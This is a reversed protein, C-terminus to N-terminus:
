AMVAGSVGKTALRPVRWSGLRLIAAGVPKGSQILLTEDDNLEKLSKLIADFSAWDRAARGIGGYVVLAKPNEAVRADLNNQLMRYPAETLWSKCHLQTGTPARVERTADYRPDAPATIKEPANM